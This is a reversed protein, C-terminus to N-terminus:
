VSSPSGRKGVANQRVHPEDSGLMDDVPLYQTTGAPDSVSSGPIRGARLMKQALRAGHNSSTADNGRWSSNGASRHSSEGPTRQHHQPETPLGFCNKRAAIAKATQMAQDRGVEAKVTLGVAAEHKGNRAQIPVTVNIAGPEDLVVPQGDQM